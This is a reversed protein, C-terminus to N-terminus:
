KRKVPGVLTKRFTKFNSFPRSDLVAFVLVRFFNQNIPKAIEDRYAAAVDGPDNNFAGCGFAGLIANKIGAKRMAEFQSHVKQQLEATYRAHSSLPASVIDRAACRMEYFPFVDKSNLLKYGLNADDRDESAKFCIRPQLDLYCVSGEGNILDRYEPLYKGRGSPMLCSVNRNGLQYDCFHCNTRRFMNEEQAAYGKTYHGGFFEANAMNLVAFTTGYKKSFKLACDGWDANLVRVIPVKSGDPTKGSSWRKMNEESQRRLLTENSAFQILTQLLIRQRKVLVSESPSKQPDLSPLPAGHGKIYQALSTKTSTKNAQNQRKWEAAAVGGIIDLSPVIKHKKRIQKQIELSPDANARNNQIFLRAEQKVIENMSSIQKRLWPIQKASRGQPGKGKLKQFEAQYMALPDTSDVSM